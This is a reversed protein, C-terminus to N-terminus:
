SGFSARWQSTLDVDSILVAAGTMTANSHGDIEVTLSGGPPNIKWTAPLRKSKLISAALAVACTGTGCSRTEGVGREYVRMDVENEGIFTIFEINVGEPYESAPTAEPKHTLDLNKLTASDEVAVVAHPNGVDVNIGGSWSKGNATVTIEHSLEQVQGMNVSIEGQAPVSLFKM